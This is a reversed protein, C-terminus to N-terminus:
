LCILLGHKIVTAIELILLSDVRDVSGANLQQVSEYRDDYPDSSLKRSSSMNVLVETTGESSLKRSTSMNVLAETTGESSLKRSSSMNVLVETTGESSM